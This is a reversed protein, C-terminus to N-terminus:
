IKQSRGINKRNESPFTCIPLCAVGLVNPGCLDTMVAGVRSRITEQCNFRNGIAESLRDLEGGEETDAGCLLGIRVLVDPAPLDKLSWELWRLLGHIVRKEGRARDMFVLQGKRVGLIPRAGSLDALLARLGGMGVLDKIRRHSDPALLLRMEPTLGTIHDRVTEPPWGEDIRRAAELALLGTGLSILRSDIIELFLPVNRGYRARRRATYSEMRLDRAARAQRIAPNLEEAPLIALIDNEQALDAFLHDFTSGSSPMGAHSVRYISPYKELATDPLDASSDILIRVVPAAQPQVTVIGKKILYILNTYTGSDIMRSEDFVRKMSNGEGILDLIHILGRRAKMEPIASLKEPDITLPRDFSGTDIRHFIGAEKEGELILSELGERITPTVSVPQPHFLPAAVKERFIRFLAKKGAVSDHVAHVIEGDDIYITARAPIDRIELLGSLRRRAFSKLLNVLGQEIAGTETVADDPEHKKESERDSEPSEKGSADPLGERREACAEIQGKGEEFPNESLAQAGRAIKFREIYGLLTEIKFPKVLRDTLGEPLGQFLEPDVGGDTMFIVPLPTKAAREISRFLEGPTTEPLQAEALIMVGSCKNEQLVTLASNPDSAYLAEYGADMLRVELLNGLIPDDTIVVVRDKM